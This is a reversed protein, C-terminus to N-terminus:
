NHGDSLEVKWLRGGMAVAYAEGSTALHLAVIQIADTVCKWSQADDAYRYLGTRTGALVVGAGAALSSVSASGELTSERVLKDDELSLVSRGMACLLRGDDTLNLVSVVEDVERTLIAKWSEGARLTLQWMGTDAQHATVAYNMARGNATGFALAVVVEGEFLACRGWSTGGDRSILVQGGSTGALMTADQGYTESISLVAILDGGINVVYEWSAGGDRSCALDAEAAALLTMEEGAGTGALLSFSVEEGESQMMKWTQGADHSRVIVGEMSAMFLTRDVEFAKSFCTTPPLHASMNENCTRWNVGDSSCYVGEDYAGALWGAESCVIVYPYYPGESADQWTV